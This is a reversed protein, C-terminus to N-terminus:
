RINDPTIKRILDRVEDAFNEIMNGSNIDTTMTSIRTVISPDTTISIKKVSSDEKKVMKEIKDKLANTMTGQTNGRLSVGVVAEDESILVSAKDVENLDTIKKAIKSANKNMLGMNNTNNANDITNMNNMNNMNGRNDPNMGMNLDDNPRTMGNNLNTDLNNMRDDPGVDTPDLPNNINPNDRGILSDNVDMNNMNNDRVTDTGTMNRDKVVRNDRTQTSLNRNTNKGTNPDKTTCATATLMLGLSLALVIIKKNKM